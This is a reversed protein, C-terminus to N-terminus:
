QKRKVAPSAPKKQSARPKRGAYIKELLNQSVDVCNSCIALGPRIAKIKKDYPYEGCATCLGYSLRTLKKSEDCFGSLVLLAHSKELNRMEEMILHDPGGGKLLRRLRETAALAEKRIGKDTKGM